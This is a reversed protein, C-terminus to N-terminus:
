SEEHSRRRTMASGRPFRHAEAPTRTTSDAWPLCRVRGQVSHRVKEGDHRAQAGPRCKAPADPAPARVGAHNVQVARPSRLVSSLMAVGQETFAHHLYRRGGHDSSTGFQYRLNAAEDKTLQFMFDSPFREFNRQVARNLVKTEVGYLEALDADLLVKHGRIMLIAREIQEAPVLDQEVM